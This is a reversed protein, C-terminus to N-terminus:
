LGDLGRGCIVGRLSASRPPRWHLIEASQHSPHERRQIRHFLFIYFTFLDCRGDEAEAAQLKHCAKRARSKGRPSSSSSSVRFRDALHLEPVLKSSTCKGGGTSSDDVNGVAIYNPDPLAAFKFMYQPSIVVHYSRSPPLTVGSTAYQLISHWLTYAPSEGPLLLLGHDRRELYTLDLFLSIREQGRDDLIPM